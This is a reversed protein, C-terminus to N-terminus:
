ERHVYYEIVRQLMLYGLADNHDHINIEPWNIKGSITDLKIHDKTEAKKIRSWPILRGKYELGKISVFLRSLSIKEGNEIRRQLPPWDHVLLMGVIMSALRPQDSITLSKGDEGFLELFQGRDKASRNLTESGTGTKRSGRKVITVLSWTMSKEGAGDSRQVGQEYLIYRTKLATFRRYAFWFLVASLYLFLLALIIGMTETQSQLCLAQIGMLLGLVLLIVGALLTFIFYRFNSKFEAIKRGLHSENRDIM